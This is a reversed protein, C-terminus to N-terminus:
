LAHVESILGDVLGKLYPGDVRVGLDEMRALVRVLPREIDDYLGRLGRADLASTLAPGLRTVAVARRGAEEAADSATGELDLQGAPPADPARVEIGAFGLSRM